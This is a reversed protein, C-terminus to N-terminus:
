LITETTKGPRELIILDTLATKCLYMHKCIHHNQTTFSLCDCTAMRGDRMDITYSLDRRTFSMISLTQLVSDDTVFPTVVVRAAELPIAKARLAQKQEDHHLPGLRRLGAIVRKINTQYDVGVENVLIYLLRHVRQNPHLEFYVSKM